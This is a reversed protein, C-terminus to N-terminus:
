KSNFDRLDSTKTSNRSAPGGRVIEATGFCFLKRFLSLESPSTPEELKVTLNEIVNGTGLDGTDPEPDPKRNRRAMIILEMAAKSHNPGKEM